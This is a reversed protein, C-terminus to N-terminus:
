TRTAVGALITEIPIRQSLTTRLLGALSALAVPVYVGVRHTVTVGLSPLAQPAQILGPSEVTRAAQFAVMVALGCLRACTHVCLCTRGGKQKYMRYGSM